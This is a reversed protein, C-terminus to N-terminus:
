LATNPPPTSHDIVEESTLGFIPPTQIGNMALYLYLQGRHHIEHEILARLWKWITVETGLPTKCKKHLDATTLQAFIAKSEQYLREYHAVVHDLGDAFEPGCGHYQSEKLQITEAYLYREINAIHRILDGITFKGAQYTWEVKDPPICAFLRRTRHKIRAHYKLFGEISNIEM